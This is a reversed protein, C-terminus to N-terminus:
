GVAKASLVQSLVPNSTSELEKSSESESVLVFNGTLTNNVISKVWATASSAIELFTLKMM